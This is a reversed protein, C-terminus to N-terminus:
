SHDPVPRKIEPLKIYSKAVRYQTVPKLTYSEDTKQRKNSAEEQRIEKENLQDRQEQKKMDQLKQQNQRIRKIQNVQDQIKKLLEYRKLLVKVSPMEFKLDYGTSIEKNNSALKL